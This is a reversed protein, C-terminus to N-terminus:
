CNPTCCNGTLRTREHPVYVAFVDVEVRGSKLDKPDLMNTSGVLNDLHFTLSRITIM